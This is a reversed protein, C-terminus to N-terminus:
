TDGTGLVLCRMLCDSGIRDSEILHSESGMPLDDTAKAFSYSSSKAAHLVAGAHLIAILRPLAPTIMRASM